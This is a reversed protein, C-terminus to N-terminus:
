RVSQAARKRPKRPEALTRRQREVRAAVLSQNQLELVKATLASRLQPGFGRRECADIGIVAQQTRIHLDSSEHTAPLDALVEAVEDLIERLQALPVEPLEFPASRLPRPKRPRRMSSAVM